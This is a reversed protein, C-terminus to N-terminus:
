LSHAFNNQCHYTWCCSFTEFMINQDSYADSSFLFINLSANVSCVIKKEKLIKLSTFLCHFTVLDLFGTFRVRSNWFTTQICSHKNQRSMQWYIKPQQQDTLSLLYSTIILTKGSNISCKRNIFYTFFIM